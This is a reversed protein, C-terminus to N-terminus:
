KGGGFGKGLKSFIGSKGLIMGFVGGFVATIVFLPVLAVLLSTVMSVTNGIATTTADTTTFSLISGMQFSGTGNDRSWARFYYKKNLVLGTVAYSYAHPVSSVATDVTHNTAGALGSDTGYLFGVTANTAGGLATLNGNLTAGHDGVGSAAVTTISSVASVPMAALLAVVLLALLSIFHKRSLRM